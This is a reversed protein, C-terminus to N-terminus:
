CLTQLLLCHTPKSKCMTNCVKIAIICHLNYLCVDSLNDIDTVYPKPTSLARYGEVIMTILEKLGRLHALSRFM